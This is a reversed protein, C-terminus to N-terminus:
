QEQWIGLPEIPPLDFELTAVDVVYQGASRIPERVRMTVAVVEGLGVQVSALHPATVLAM